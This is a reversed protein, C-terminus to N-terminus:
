LPTLFSCTNYFNRCIIKSMQSKFNDRSVTCPEPGTYWTAVVSDVRRQVVGQVPVMVRSNTTSYETYYELTAACEELVVPLILVMTSLPFNGSFIINCLEYLLQHVLILIIKIIKWM